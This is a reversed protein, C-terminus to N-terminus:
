EPDAYKMLLFVGGYFGAFGALFCISHANDSSLKLAASLANAAVIAAWTTLTAFFPRDVIEHDRVRSSRSQRWGGASAPGRVRGYRTPAPANPRYRAKQCVCDRTARLPKWGRPRRRRSKRQIAESTRLSITQM